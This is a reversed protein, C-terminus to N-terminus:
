HATTLLKSLELGMHAVCGKLPTGMKYGDMDKLNGWTPNYRKKGLVRPPAIRIPDFACRLDCTLRIFKPGDARWKFVHKLDRNLHCRVIYIFDRKLSWPGCTSADLDESSSWVLSIKPITPDHGLNITRDHGDMRRWRIPHDGIKVHSKRYFPTRVRKYIVRSQITFLNPLKKSFDHTRWELSSQWGVSTPNIM